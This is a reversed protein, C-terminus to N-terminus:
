QNREEVLKALAPELNTRLLYDREGLRQREAEMPVREVAEVVDGPREHHVALRVEVAEVFGEERVELPDFRLDGVQERTEFLPELIGFDQLLERRLLDCLKAVQRGFFHLLEELFPEFLLALSV